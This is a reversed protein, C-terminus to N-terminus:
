LKATSNFSLCWEDTVTAEPLHVEYRQLLDGEGKLIERMSTRTKSDDEDKEDFCGM